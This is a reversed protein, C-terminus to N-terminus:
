AVARSSLLEAYLDEVRTQIAEAVRDFAAAVATKGGQAAVPDPISWHVFRPKGSFEVAESRALDCLTVVYDFAQGAFEEVAKSRLEGVQVGRTGLVQQVTPHVGAPHTGASRVLIRGGGLDQLMAEAILSRASNGTCLFLVSALHGAALAAPSANHSIAALVGRLGASVARRDLSYYIDRGDASSRRERVVGAGRLVRLHYSVLNQAEGTAASLEGVRLDSEHLQAILQWRLDHGLAKLIPPTM